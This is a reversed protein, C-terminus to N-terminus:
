VLDNISNRQKKKKKEILWQSHKTRQTSLTFQITKTENPSEQRIAKNSNVIHIHKDIFCEHNELTKLSLFPTPWHSINVRFDMSSVIHTNKYVFHFFSFFFFSRFSIFIFLYSFKFIKMFFRVFSRVFFFFGFLIFYSIFGVYTNRTTQKTAPQHKSNPITPIKKMLWTIGKKNTKHPTKKKQEKGRETPANQKLVM